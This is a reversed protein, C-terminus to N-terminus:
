IQLTTMPISNIQFINSATEQIMYALFVYPITHSAEVQSYIANQALTNIYEKWNLYHRYMMDALINGIVAFELEM